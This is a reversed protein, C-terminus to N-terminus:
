LAKMTRTLGRTGHRRFFPPIFDVSSCFDSIALRIATRGQYPRSTCTCRVIGCSCVRTCVSNEHSSQRRGGNNERVYCPRCNESPIFTSFLRKKGRYAAPFWIGTHKGIQAAFAGNCHSFSDFISRKIVDYKPSTRTAFVSIEVIIMADPATKRNWVSDKEM